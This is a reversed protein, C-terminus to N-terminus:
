SWNTKTGELRCTQRVKRAEGGGRRALEPTPWRNQAMVRTKGCAGRHARPRFRFSHLREKAREDAIVRGSPALRRHPTVVRTIRGLLVEVGRCAPGTRSASGSLPKGRALSALGFQTTRWLARRRGRAAPRRPRIGAHPRCGRKDGAAIPNRIAVHSTEDTAGRASIPWSRGRDDLGSRLALLKGFIGPSKVPSRRSNEAPRLIAPRSNSWM